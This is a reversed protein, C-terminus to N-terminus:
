NLPGEGLVRTRKCNQGSCSSSAPLDDGDARGPLRVEIGGLVAAIVVAKGRIRATLFAIRM